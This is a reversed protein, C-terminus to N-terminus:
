LLMLNKKIKQFKITFIKVLVFVGVKKLLTVYPIANTLDKRFHLNKKLENIYMKKKIPCTYGVLHLNNKKFDIIKKKEYEVYAEKIEWTLPVKWDFVNSKSKIKKIFIKENYLRLINLSQIFGKGTISRNLPFLKKLLHYLNM